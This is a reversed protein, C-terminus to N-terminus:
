FRSGWKPNSEKFINSWNQFNTRIRICDKSISALVLVPLELRGFSYGGLM